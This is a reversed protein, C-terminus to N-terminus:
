NGFPASSPEINRSYGMLPHEEALPDLCLQRLGALDFEGLRLYSAFDTELFAKIAAHMVFTSQSTASPEELNFNRIVLQKWLAQKGSEIGAAM